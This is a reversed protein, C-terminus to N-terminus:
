WSNKLINKGTQRNTKSCWRSRRLNIKIRGSVLLYIDSYDCLISKFMLITFRDRSGTRYQGYSDDNMEVRNKTRYKSPWNPKDDSFHKIKQYKM